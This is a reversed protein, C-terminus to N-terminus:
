ECIGLDEIRRWQQFLCPVVQQLEVQVRSRFDPMQSLFTDSLYETCGDRGLDRRPSMRVEASCSLPDSRVELFLDFGTAAGALPLLSSEGFCIIALALLDDPDNLTESAPYCHPTIFYTLPRVDGVQSMDGAVIQTISEGETVEGEGENSVEFKNEEQM